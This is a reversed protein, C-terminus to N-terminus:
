HITGSSVDIDPNPDTTGPDVRWLQPVLLYDIRHHVGSKSAWAWQPGETALDGHAQPTQLPRSAALTMLRQGGVDPTQEFHTGFLGAEGSGVRCNGDIGVFLAQRQAAYRQIIPTAWNWWAEVRRPKDPPRRM